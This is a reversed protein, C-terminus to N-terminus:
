SACPPVSSSSGAGPDIVLDDVVGRREDALGDVLHELSKAVRDDQDGDHHETKRWLQRAVSMGSMATGTAIMPVKAAIFPIPNLRLLRESSPRTSAMPITTSSAITTTSATSCM